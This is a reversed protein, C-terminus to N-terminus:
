KAESMIESLKMKYYDETIPQQAVICPSDTMAFSVNVNGKHIGGHCFECLLVIDEKKEHGLNDYNLHHIQLRYKSKCRVCCKLEAIIAARKAKWEPSQIYEYYDVM